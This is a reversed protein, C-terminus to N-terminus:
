FVGAGFEIVFGSHSFQQFGVNKWGFRLGWFETGLHRLFKLPTHVVNVRLKLGIESVFIGKYDTILREPNSDYIEYGMGIYPDVWRSASPTHVIQHGIFTTYLDNTADENGIYVKNFLWGGTLPASVNKFLLLPLALSISETNDRRYAFSISKYSDATQSQRVFANKAKAKIPVPWKHPKKDNMFHDLDEPVQLELYDPYPRLEYVDNGENPDFKQAFDEYFTDGPQIPPFLLSAKTRKKTMWAQYQGTYLRGSTEIDRVGWADNINKTVDYGPTYM